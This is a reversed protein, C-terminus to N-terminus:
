TVSTVSLYPIRAPYPTTFDTVSTVTLYPIRVPSPHKFVYCVYCKPKTPFPFFRLTVDPVYKVM